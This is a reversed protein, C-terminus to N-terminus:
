HAPRHWFEAPLATIGVAADDLEAAQGLLGRYVPNGDAALRRIADANVTARRAITAGFAARDGEHGYADLLLHLRRQRDGFDDFGRAQAAPRTDLPTWTLASFALDLEPSSPGATDWDVFGVLADERWVANYPAADHHGIVLGPSWRQRGFWVADAPPVFCRTLDHLRRLWRGVQVLASDSYVWPPWPLLTGVTTGDLHSVVEDGDAGVGIPVPAGDFGHDALYRLVAHVSPTWPGGRRVVTDGHRTAGATRGGELRGVDM